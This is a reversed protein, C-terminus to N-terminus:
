VWNEIPHRFDHVRLDVGPNTQRALNLLTPSLDIGAREVRPFHRLFYGMGCAVGLWISGPRLLQGLLQLGHHSDADCHRVHTSEEIVETRESVQDNGSQLAKMLALCREAEATLRLIEQLLAECLSWLAWRDVIDQRWAIQQAASRPWFFDTALTTAADRILE